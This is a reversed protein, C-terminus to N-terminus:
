RGETTIGDQMRVLVRGAHRGRLTRIQAIKPQEDAADQARNAAMVASSQAAASLWGLTRSAWNNSEEGAAVDGDIEPIPLRQTYRLENVTAPETDSEAVDDPNRLSLSLTGMNQGLDLLSAQDPTVLLTISRLQQPDLRNGTPADLYDDVALIEVAQLLTTSSGGGTAEERGGRLTLLIDVRNGPMVFGAVKAAVHSTQITYARRGDPILAALGRGANADALREAFIVEGQSIKTLATRGIVLQADHLALTPALERPWERTVVSAETIMEGRMIESAAVVVAVKSIQTPTKGRLLFLGLSASGGCVTALLL